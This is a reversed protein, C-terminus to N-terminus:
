SENVFAEAKAWCNYLIGSCGSNVGIFLLPAKGVNGVM